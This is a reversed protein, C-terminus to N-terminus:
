IELGAQQYVAKLRKLALDRHKKVAEQFKYWPSEYFDKKAWYRDFLDLEFERKEVADHRWQDKNYEPMDSCIGSYAKIRAREDSGLLYSEHMADELQGKLKQWRQIVLEGGINPDCYKCFASYIKEAADLLRDDNNILENEEVLRPDKWENDVKDPEHRADAHGINPLIEWTPMANFVHKMGIFNQHAWSDAYAHAAIGIRYLDNSEIAKNLFFKANTSDPTTNMPHTKGDKRRASPSSPDGPVFHFVPYIKERKASPKTIDMTQSVENMYCCGDRFNIYCYFDNDDTYQCAYATTYADNKKFGAKRALIYTIYYHFEIDM